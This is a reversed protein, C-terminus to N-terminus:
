VCFVICLRLAVIQQQKQVPLYRWWTIIMLLDALWVCMRNPRFFLSLPKKTIVKHCESCIKNIRLLPHPTSLPNQGTPWNDSIPPNSLSRPSNPNRSILSSKQYFRRTKSADSLHRMVILTLRFAQRREIIQLHQSTSSAKRMVSYFTTYCKLICNNAYQVRM